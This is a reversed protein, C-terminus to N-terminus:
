ESLSGLHVSDTFSATQSEHITKRLCPFRVADDCDSLWSANLLGSVFFPISFPQEIHSQIRVLDTSESLAYELGTSRQIAEALSMVPPVTGTSTELVNPSGPVAKMFLLSSLSIVFSSGKINEVSLCMSSPIQGPHYGICSHASFMRFNKSFSRCHSFLRESATDCSANTALNTPANM